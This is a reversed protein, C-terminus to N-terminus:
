YLLHDMINSSAQTSKHISRTPIDVVFFAVFYVGRLGEICSAFPANKARLENPYTGYRAFVLATEELVNKMLVELDSRPIREATGLRKVTTVRSGALSATYIHLHVDPTGQLSQDIRINGLETGDRRIPIM